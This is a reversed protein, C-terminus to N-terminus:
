DDDEDDEDDDVADELFEIFKEMVVSKPEFRRVGTLLDDDELGDVGERLAMLLGVVASNRNAEPAKSAIDEVGKNISNVVADIAEIADGIKGYLQEIIYSWKQMMPTAQKAITNPPLKAASMDCAACADGALVHLIASLHDPPTSDVHGQFRVTLNFDRLLDSDARSEAKQGMWRRVSGLLDEEEDEDDAGDDDVINGSALEEMVKRAQDESLGQFMLEKLMEANEDTTDKKDDIAKRQAEQVARREAKTLQKKAGAGGEKDATQAKRRSEHYAKREDKSMAALEEKTKEAPAEAPAAVPAAEAGYGGSSAMAAAVQM